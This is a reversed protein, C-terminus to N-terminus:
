ARLAETPSLRAARNAPYGGALIGALVSGAFAIGIAAAPLVPIWGRTLAYGFTIATGAVLGTVGGLAALLVSEVLFQRRVHARTAGLARRLGIEARRELVAIVMVNAIGVAGVLLAVAGLGVFLDSGTRAALARAVLADSPRSVTVEDPREPNTARALKARVVLVTDETSRQYIKTPAGDFGLRDRAVAVGVLAASDITTDLPSAALIGVVTFWQGGLYVHAGAAAVGLRRAAAAGLVTAPFRATAENLWGGSRVGVQLTAALDLTTALVEIGSTAAAPIRDNRYVKAPLKGVAAVRQVGDLRGIRAPAEVPLKAADGTATRGAQVTLLNTGLAEIEALLKAQSSASIGLVAVVCAIGLAIGLASLAARLPRSRLGLAGTGLLDVTSLRSKM